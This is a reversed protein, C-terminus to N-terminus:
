EMFVAANCIVDIKEKKGACEKHRVMHVVGGKKGLVTVLSGAPFTHSTKWDLEGKDNPEVAVGSQAPKWNAWVDMSYSCEDEAKVAEKGYYLYWTPEGAKHIRQDPPPIDAVAPREDKDWDLTNVADDCSEFLYEDTTAVFDNKGVPNYDEVKKGDFVTMYMDDVSLRCKRENIKAWVM